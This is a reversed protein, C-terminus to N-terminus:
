KNCYKEEQIEFLFTLCWAPLWHYPCDTWFFLNHTLSCLMGWHNINVLLWFELLDFHLQILPSSLFFSLSLFLKMESLHFLRTLYLSLRQLFTKIAGLINFCFLWDYLSLSQLLDLTWIICWVKLQLSFYLVLHLRHILLEPIGACFSHCYHDLLVCFPM